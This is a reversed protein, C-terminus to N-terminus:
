YSRHDYSSCGFTKYQNRKCIEFGSVRFFYEGDMIDLHLWDADSQNVMEIAAQLNGFDASLLSPAIKHTM